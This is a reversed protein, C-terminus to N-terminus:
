DVAYAFNTLLTSTYMLGFKNIYHVFYVAPIAIPQIARSYPNSEPCLYFITRKEVSRRQPGGLRRGLPYRPNLPWARFTIV